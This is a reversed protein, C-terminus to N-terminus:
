FGKMLYKIFSFAVLTMFWTGYMLAVVKKIDNSRSERHDDGIIPKKILKGSYYSEGGLSIGLAGAAASEPYGSNPSLHKRRDRKIIKYANKYDLKLVFASLLMFIATLRSPIYNAIDDLIASAYGFDKYRHNKYGVMSDLTNIAKYAIAAPVGGIFLYFLPAIIGDGTNESVTEVVAKVIDKEELGEVDRGVIYSLQKRALSINGEELNKMIKYAEKHLCRGAMTTYILLISTINYFTIDIRLTLELLLRTLGFSLGVTTITLLIGLFKLVRRSEDGKVLLKEFSKIYLGMLRVPHPFWYPDGWLIDLGNAVWIKLM